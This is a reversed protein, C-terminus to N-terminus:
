ALAWGLLVLGILLLYFIATAPAALSAVVERPPSARPPFEITFLKQWDLNADSVSDPLASSTMRLSRELALYYADLVALGLVLIGGVLLLGPRSREIALSVLLGAATATLAKIKLSADAMRAIVM